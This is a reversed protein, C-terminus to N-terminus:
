KAFMIKGKRIAVQQLDNYINESVRRGNLNIPRNALGDIAEIVERDGNMIAQAIPFMSEVFVERMLNEPTVIEPNTNAGAYEGVMAMTPSTLVGGNALEPVSILSPNWESLQPIKTGFISDNLATTLRNIVRVFSNVFSAFGTIIGNIVSVFASKINYWVNGWVEEMKNGLESWIKYIEGFDGKFSAVVTKVLARIYEFVTVFSGKFLEIQAIVVSIATNLGGALLQIVVQLVGSCAQLVVAVINMIINLLDKLVVTIVTIVPELSKLLEGIMNFVPSLTDLIPILTEALINIATTVIPMLAEVLGVIMDLAPLFANIINSLLGNFSERFQENTAYLVGFIAAIITFPNIISKLIKTVDTFSKIKAFAKAIKEFTPTLKEFISTVSKLAVLSAGVAVVSKIVALIKAINSNEGLEYNIESIEKGTDDLYLNTKKTYGLWKLVKESIKTAENSVNALSEKYKGIENTLLSYDAEIFSSSSSGLTNLKDFGLLTSQLSEVAEEASEASYELDGFLSGVTSDTLDINVITKLIERVAIAGGLLAQVLPHVWELMLTGIYRGIEELTDKLQKIQNSTSNITNAFDGLAGTEAMQKQLAIIRLLRKETEDLQRMSKTGGLSEYISYISAESVDYGAVSRIQRIQGSLVGQFQQMAKDIEVNFLSAYDISMRTLTESLDYATRKSMGGLATLMNNFTSQYDMISETSLNFANTLSDVFVLSEQYFEGMSVQFKNLTEEFQVADEVMKEISNALQKTNNIFSYIKGFNFGSFLGKSSQKNSKKEEANIVKIAGSFNELAPGAAEIKTLLPDLADYLKQFNAVTEDDLKVECLTKLAKVSKNIAKTNLSAIPEFVTELNPFKISAIEKLNASVGSLNVKEIKKLVKNVSQLSKAVNDLDSITKTVDSVLSISLDGLNYNNQM